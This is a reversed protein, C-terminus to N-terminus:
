RLLTVRGTQVDGRSVLRYLYVGSALGSADWPVTHPGARMVGSALTAVWRGRPADLFLHPNSTCLFLPFSRLSEPVHSGEKSM